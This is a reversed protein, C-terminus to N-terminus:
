QEDVRSHRTWVVAGPCMSLHSSETPQKFDGWLSSLSSIFGKSHKKFSRPRPAAGSGGLPIERPRNGALSGTRQQQRWEIGTPAMRCGASELRGLRTM